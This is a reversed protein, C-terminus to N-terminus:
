LSFLWLLGCVRCRFNDSCDRFLGVRLLCELFVEIAKQLFSAVVNRAVLSEFRTVVGFGRLNLNCAISRSHCVNDLATISIGQAFSQGEAQRSVGAILVTFGQQMHDAATPVHFEQLDKHFCTGIQLSGVVMSTCRQVISAPRSMRGKINHFGDQLAIGEHEEQLIRTSRQWQGVHVLCIPGLPCLPQIVVNVRVEGRFSMGCKRRAVQGAHLGFRNGVRWGFRLKRQFENLHNGITAHTGVLSADHGIVM